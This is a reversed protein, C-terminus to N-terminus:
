FRLLESLSQLSPADDLKGVCDIIMEVTKPSVTKMMRRFKQEVDQQNFPQHNSGKAGNVVRSYRKGDKRVLTVRSGIIYPYQKDFEPTAKLKVRNQFEKILPDGLMKETYAKPDLIDHHLTVAM